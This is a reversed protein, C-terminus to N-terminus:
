VKADTKSETSETGRHNLGPDTPLPVLKLGIALCQRSAEREEIRAEEPVLMTGNPATPKGQALAGNPLRSCAQLFRREMEKFDWKVAGSKALLMLDLKPSVRAQHIRFIERLRRKARTRFIAKGVAAISAVVCVRPGVLVETAPDSPRELWWLTFAGCDVRRGLERLARIDGQRRLHQEPRYRM